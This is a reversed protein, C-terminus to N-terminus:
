DKKVTTTTGKPRGPKRKGTDLIAARLEDSIAHLNCEQSITTIEANPVLKLLYEHCEEQGYGAIYCNWADGNLLYDFRYVLIGKQQTM